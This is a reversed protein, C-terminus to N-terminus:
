DRDSSAVHQLEVSSLGRSKFRGRLSGWDVSGPSLFRLMTDEWAKKRFKRALAAHVEVKITETM